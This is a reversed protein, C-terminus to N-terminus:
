RTWEADVDHTPAAFVGRWLLVAGLAFVGLVVPALGTEVYRMRELTTLWPLRPGGTTVEWVASAVGNGERMDRVMALCWSWYATAGALAVAVPRRQRRLVGAAILFLFPAAPVVYRIGTITQLRGYQISGCFMFLGICFGALAIAERAGVLRLRFWAPPYLAMLLLPASTFLGYRLGFATWWLLRPDPGTIGFHGRVSLRTSPMYYQAPYFPHGLYVWQYAVLVVVGLSIGMALNRLDSPARAVEPLVSRRLCAYVVVFAIVVVGSYDCVLAWGALLGAAFYAPRARPNADWPRWLLAFAFLACHAVLLNHNLQATRYFVPTAVGYLAALAAAARPSAIRSTLLRFMVVVSAASLPAMAFMQMVGAALGLKV